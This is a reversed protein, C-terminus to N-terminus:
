YKTLLFLKRISNAVSVMGNFNKEAELYKILFIKRKKKEIEKNNVKRGLYRMKRWPKRTKSIRKRVEGRIRKKFNKGEIHKLISSKKKPMRKKTVKCFLM